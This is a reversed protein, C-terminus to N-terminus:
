AAAESHFQRDIARHWIGLAARGRELDRENVIVRYGQGKCGYIVSYIVHERRLFSAFEGARGYTLFEALLKM